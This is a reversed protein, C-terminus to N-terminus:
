TFQTIVELLKPFSLRKGHTAPVRSYNHFDYGEPESWIQIAEDNTVIGRDSVLRYKRKGKITELVKKRQSVTLM